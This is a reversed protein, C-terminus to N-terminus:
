KKANKKARKRRAAEREVEDAFAALDDAFTGRSSRRPRGKAKGAVWRATGVTGGGPIWGWM